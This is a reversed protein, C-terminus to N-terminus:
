ADNGGIARLREAVAAMGDDLEVRAEKRWAMEDLIAEAMEPALAILAADSERATATIVRLRSREDEGWLHRGEWRWAWPYDSM